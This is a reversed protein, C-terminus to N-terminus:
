LNKSSTVVRKRSMFFLIVGSLASVFALISFIKIFINGMNDRENWDMIHFGWMLDWMRWKFSRILLIEETFPDLYVDIEEQDKSLAEVKYLPLRNVKRYESGAVEEVIEVVNYPELHTKSSVIKQAQSFSIKNSKKKMPKVEEILFHEGRVETIDNYSFYIGSVTWLLLQISIVLSLYRHFKRSNLRANM